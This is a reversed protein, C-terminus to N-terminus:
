LYILRGELLIRRASHSCICLVRKDADEKKESERLIGIFFNKWMFKDETIQIYMYLIYNCTYMFLMMVGKRTDIKIM